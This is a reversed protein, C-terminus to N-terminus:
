HFGNKQYNMTLSPSTNDGSSSSFLLFTMKFSLCTKKSESIHEKKNHTHIHIHLYLPDSANRAMQM